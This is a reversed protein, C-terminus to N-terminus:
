PRPGNPYMVARCAALERALQDHREQLIAQARSCEALQRALDREREEARDADDAHRTAQAALMGMSERILELHGVESPPVVTDPRAEIQPPREGNPKDLRRKLYVGGLGSLVFLAVVVIIVWGPQGDLNPLEM